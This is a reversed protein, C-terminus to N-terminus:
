DGVYEGPKKSSYYQSIKNSIDESSKKSKISEIDGQKLGLEEKINAKAKLAYDFYSAIYSLINYSKTDLKTFPISKYSVSTDMNIGHGTDKESGLNININIDKLEKIGKLIKNNIDIIWNQLEKEDKNKIYNDKHPFSAEVYDNWILKVDRVLNIGKTLIDSPVSENRDIINGLENLISHKM